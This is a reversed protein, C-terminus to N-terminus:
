RHSQVQENKLISKGRSDSEFFCYMASVRDAYDKVKESTDVLASPGGNWVVAIWYPTQPINAKKLLAKISKVHETAVVKAMVPNAKGPPTKSYIRWVKPTIQYQSVEGKKGLASPDNGSEVMAIAALLFAIQM